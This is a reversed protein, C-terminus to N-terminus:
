YFPDNKLRSSCKQLDSHAPLFGEGLDLELVAGEVLAAGPQPHPHGVPVTLRKFSGDEM